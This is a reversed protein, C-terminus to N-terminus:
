KSWILGAIEMLWGIGLHLVLGGAVSRSHYSIVGLLIGGFFSSICEALPKGFHIACYLAAM